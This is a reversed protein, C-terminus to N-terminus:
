PEGFSSLTVVLWVVIFAVAAVGITWMLTHLSFYPREDEAPRQRRWKPV